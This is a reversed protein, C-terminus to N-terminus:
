DHLCRRVKSCMEYYELGERVGQSPNEFVKQIAGKKMVIIRSALFVSEEINHTVFITTLARERNLQLLQTQLSEKTLSDLASFAEDMLLLDADLALARGIAVRQQQGGSLQHPYRDKYPLLGLMDLHDMVIEPYTDIKRIRLTFAINEYVSKWPLLGYNQSILATQRRVGNVAQNEIYLTGDSPKRIGSILSLISTKGSGSAGLICVLEGRHVEMTIHDLAVEDDYRLSM